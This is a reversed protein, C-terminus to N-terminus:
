QAPRPREFLGNDAADLEPGGLADAARRGIRQHGRWQYGSSYSWGRNGRDPGPMVMGFPVSAAPTVHGTGDTGIFPDVWQTVDGGDLTAHASDALLSSLLAAPPLAVFARRSVM